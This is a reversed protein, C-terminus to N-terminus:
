VMGHSPEELSDSDGLSDEVKNWFNDMGAAYATSPSLGAGTVGAAYVKWVSEILLHFTIKEEHMFVDDEMHQIAAGSPM